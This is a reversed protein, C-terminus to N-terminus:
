SWFKWKSMNIIAAKFGKSFGVKPGRCLYNRNVAKKELTHAVSEQKFSSMELLVNNVVRFESGRRSPTTTPNQKNTETM